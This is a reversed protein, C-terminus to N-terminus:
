MKHKSKFEKGSHLPHKAGTADYGQMQMGIRGVAFDKFIGMVIEM